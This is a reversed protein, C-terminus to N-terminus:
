TKQSVACARGKLIHISGKETCIAVNWDEPLPSPVKKGQLKWNDDYLYTLLKVNEETFPIHFIVLKREEDIERM